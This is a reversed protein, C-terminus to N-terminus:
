SAPAQNLFYFHDTPGHGQGLAWGNRIAETIYQKALEIAQIIPTGKALHAAIASAYSCGTGHTHPTDIFETTYMRFFRGDYLLDTGPREALHGGKLLVHRPGLKFIIKAAERADALTQITTKSLAEAEYTNPTVLTAQPLLERKILDIAEPDLLRHGGKAIMVPDVVLPVAPCDRLKRSVAKVIDVTALMGTKISAVPIDRFLADMQAEIIQVPLHFVEIVGTTNQATISSIVSMGFVGNASMAKLDGQIGAGGSSDSGAITVVAKKM